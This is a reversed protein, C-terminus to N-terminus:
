LEAYDIPYDLFSHDGQGVCLPWLLKAIATSHFMEFNNQSICTLQGAVINGEM